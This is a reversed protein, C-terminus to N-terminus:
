NEKKQNDINKKRQSEKEVNNWYHKKCAKRCSEKGRESQKYEKEKEPNAYRSDMGIRKTIPNYTVKICENNERKNYLAIRM